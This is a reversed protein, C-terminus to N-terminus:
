GKVAGATLGALIRRQFILVLIILPITLTVSLAMISGWPLSFESEGAFTAVFVIATRANYDQTFTLAFLLENWAGIFALLGTTVLGPAALPLLVKYFTQFPTAGDVLAAEELEGPMAKFFNTLTWVTFPLTFVTNAIILAWVTNYLGLGIIMQYFTGVIAIGPFMTMSLILYLIFTRGRFRLRGMAYAAFSGIVLAVVVTTLTVVTSNRLAPLFNPNVYASRYNDLTFNTPIYQPPTQFLRNTPTLSTVIAWYFPFITYVLIVAVLIYFLIRNILEGTKRNRVRPTGPMTSAAM